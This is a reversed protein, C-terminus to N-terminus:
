LTLIAGFLGSSSANQFDIVSLSLAGYLPLHIAMRPRLITARPVPKSATSLAPRRAAPLHGM